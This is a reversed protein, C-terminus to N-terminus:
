DNVALDPTTEASVESRRGPTIQHRQIKYLLGRYSINLQQAARRRNWGSADLARKIMRMETRDTFDRVLSRMDPTQVPESVAAAQRSTMSAEAIKTELEEVAADLDWMVITRMVFNRLERVNGRWDYLLAADMLRAPFGFKIGNKMEPPMRRIIEEILYPIEARRERLPPVNITFMSLRYYLDERFTKNRLAIEMEANTAAIVRVDVRIPEEGGLCSFQGDQLVQLFKAQMRGCIEGIEDLFLTSHNAQEFKGRTDKIAGTFAGKRHGFLESELLQEPLAACNVKQLKYRARRSHKHILHAIVEKGTGSEGLILVNLDAGALLKAQRHIELMKPSAALFFGNEGLEELHLVAPTSGATSLAPVTAKASPSSVIDERAAPEASGALGDIILELDGRTTPKPLLHKIGLEVAETYLSQEGIGLALCIKHPPVSKLLARLRAAESPDAPTSEVLLLDPDLGNSLLLQAQLYGGSEIVRHGAGGLVM